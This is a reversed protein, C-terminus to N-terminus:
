PTKGPRSHVARVTCPRRSNLASWGDTLVWDGCVGRTRYSAYIGRRHTSFIVISISNNYFIIIKTNEQLHKCKLSIIFAFPLTNKNIGVDAMKLPDWGIM